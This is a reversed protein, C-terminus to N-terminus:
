QRQKRQSKKMPLYKFYEKFLNNLGVYFAKDSDSSECLKNIRTFELITHKENSEDIETLMCLEKGVLLNSLLLSKHRNSKEKLAEKASEKIKWCHLDKMYQFVNFYYLKGLEFM